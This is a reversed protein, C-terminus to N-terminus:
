KLSEKTMVILVVSAVVTADEAAAEEFGRAALGQLLAATDVQNVKCGLTWARVLLTERASKM